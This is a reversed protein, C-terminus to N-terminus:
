CSRLLSVLSFVFFARLVVQMKNTSELQSKTLPFTLAKIVVTMVIISVGWADESMGVGTLISHILKLLGEIPGTLFGFWGNGQDATAAATADAAPASIADSVAEVAESVDADSLVLSTFFHHLSHAHPPLDHIIHPDVAALKSSSPIFSSVSVPRFSIPPAFAGATPASLALLLAQSKM